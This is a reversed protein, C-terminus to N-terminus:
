LTPCSGGFRVGAGAVIGLSALEGLPVELADAFPRSAGFLPCNKASAPCPEMDSTSVLRGAEDFFAISLPLLTDRMYFNVSVPKGFRFVMGAYDGLDTVNMLGHNRLADTDALLLCYEKTTGDAGTVVMRIERYASLEAPRARIAGTTPAAPAPATTVTATGSTATAGVPPTERGSRRDGGCGAVLLALVVVPTLRRM